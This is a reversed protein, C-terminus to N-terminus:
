SPWWYHCSKAKYEHIKDAGEIPDLLKGIVCLAGKQLSCSLFSRLVHEWTFVPQLWIMRLATM